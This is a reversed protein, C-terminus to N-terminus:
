EGERVTLRFFQRLEIGIPCRVTVTETIGNGDDIAPDEIMEPTTSWSLPTLETSAEVAYTIGLAIADVRRQYTFTFETGDHSIFAGPTIDSATAFEYINADGDGDTDSLWDTDAGGIYDAWWLYREEAPTSDVPTGYVEVEALCLPRPTDGLLQVRVRDGLTHGFGTIRYIAADSLEGPEEHRHVELEGDYVTVRFNSLRYGLGEGRNYLVIEGIEARGALQVQWWERPETAATHTISGSAYLADTNGDIARDADGSSGTNTQSAVAAPDYALNPDTKTSADNAFGSPVQMHVTLTAATTAPPYLFGAGDDQVLLDLEVTRRALLASRNLLTIEGTSRNIELLGSGSGGNIAFTHTDAGSDFIPVTGVVSGQAAAPDVFLTHCELQPAANINYPDLASDPIITPDTITASTWAAQIRDGGGGEAHRAEIYYRTGAALTVPLSTQSPYKDWQEDSAWGDVSAILTANSPNEDTSLWLEGGDDSAVYLTYDGAEPPTLYARVRSAYNNGYDSGTDFASLARILDPAQPFRRNSTLNTVDNSIGNWIEQHISDTGFTGSDIVDVTVTAEGTLPPSGSDTVRVTLSHAPTTAADLMGGIAVSLEGTSSIAFVGGPDGSIIEFSSPSDGDNRDTSAVAAILTGALSQEYVSFGEPVIMPAFNEYYPALFRGPIVELDFEDCEWAVAVHDGGGGEKHVAEIYYAVGAQLSVALSRQPGYKTWDEEGTWGSVGAISIANARDDDTSLLLDSADDSAISFHYSGTVPPVVYGRLRSGYDGGRSTDGKMRTRRSEIHPDALAPDATYLDSLDSGSIGNWISYSIEGVTKGAPAAVIEIEFSATASLAGDTVRVHLTRLGAATDPLDAVTIAGSDVDLALSGDENGSDIAFSLLSGADPDTASLQAIETGALARTVAYVKTPASISPPENINTVTVVVRLPVVGARDILLEFWGVGTEFDLLGPDAVRLVGDVGLAFAGSENGSSITDGVVLSGVVDDVQATEEVEWREPEVTTPLTGSLTYRGLSAYATYGTTADAGEGTASVRVTYEGVPLAAYTVTADHSGTDNNTVLAGGTDDYLGLVLDVNPGYQVAAATVTVNGAATTTFKLADVDGESEIVGADDVTGGFVELYSAGAHASGHDDNQYDVDNNDETIIQLDDQTNSADAYEGKSWQSLNRYYGVGMIPAWATDGEGHGGYYGESSPDETEPDGDDYNRGDHGLKLTHGVEHSIVEAGSKGKSYFAWCPTDGTWNFSGLYAVGGASPAADKTPTVVCRQRSAAPAAQYVAEDTTINLNFPAFDESVRRWVQVIQSNTVSPAEADIGGWTSTSHGDYDLLVVAISGPRSELPVVGNQYAPIPITEWDIDEVPPDPAAELAIPGAYKECRVEEMTRAVLMSASLDATPELRFARGNEFEFVGVFPGAVGEESQKQVFFRGPWPETLTGSIYDPTGEVADYTVHAVTGVAVSQQDLDFRLPAGVTADRHSELFAKGWGPATRVPNTPKALNPLATLLLPHSLTDVGL